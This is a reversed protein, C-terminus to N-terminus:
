TFYFIYYITQYLDASTINPNVYKLNKDMMMRLTKKSKSDTILLVQIDQLQAGNKLISATHLNYLDSDIIVTHISKTNLFRVLDSSDITAFIKTEDVGAEVCKQAFDVVKCLDERILLIGKKDMM